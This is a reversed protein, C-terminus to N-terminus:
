AKRWWDGFEQELDKRFREAVQEMAALNKVAAVSESLNASRMEEIMQEIEHLTSRNSAMEARWLCLTERNLNLRRAFYRAVPTLPTLSGDDAVVLHEMFDDECPDLFREGLANEGPSPWHNGKYDNCAFCVYYLNSYATRLHAFEPRSKPRFHDVAYNRSPGNRREPINCYACRYRFDLRLYRKYRRYDSLEPPKQERVVRPM